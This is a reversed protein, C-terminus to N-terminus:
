KLPYEEPFFVNWLLYIADSENQKGDKNYDTDAYVPYEKPFFVNWLLYIADDEDVDYDRDVDGPAYRFKYTAKYTTSGNCPVVEKDWGIFDYEGKSDAPRTPAAPPKVTEGIDYRQKSLVTGDYNVFTVIPKTITVDFTVTFGKYSVTLTNKGVKSNDFGTVMDATVTVTREEIGDYMVKLTAGTLDLKEEKCIYETKKPLSGVTVSTITTPIIEVNFTTTKGGCSVTITNTGLKSNDFGRIMHQTIPITMTRGNNYTVLLESGKLDPLVDNAKLVYEQVDPLKTVKLSSVTAGNVVTASTSPQPDMVAAYISSGQKICIWNGDTMQGWTRDTGAEEQTKVIQIQNGAIKTGVAAGATSPQNRVTLTSTVESTIKYWTGNSQGSNVVSEYNTNNLMIWGDSCYGWLNGDKGVATKMIRLKENMYAQYHGNLVKRVAGYYSAPGEYIKITTWSNVLVDLSVSTANEVDITVTEGKDNKWQAYLVDGNAFACNIKEVKVGGVRQTYWGAFTLEKGNKDKPISTFTARVPCEEGSNFTQYYYRTEGGNGDLIVYRLQKLPDRNEERSYEGFLYIEAEDLRRQIHHLSVRGVSKAWLGFAFVLEDGTKGESITKRLVGTPDYTPSVSPMMWGQGCNYTLSILADFQNQTFTLGHDDAFDNVLNEFSVLYKRMLEIAHEESIPNAKTYAACERNPDLYGTMSPSCVDCRTGIGVSRQSGDTKCYSQFGEYAKLFQILKDSTKMNSKAYVPVAMVVMGLVVALTLLMCLFRNKM